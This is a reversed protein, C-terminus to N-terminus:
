APCNLEAPVRLLSHIEVTTGVSLEGATAVIRKICLVVGHLNLWSTIWRKRRAWRRQFMTGPGCKSGPIEVDLCFGCPRPVGFNPLDVCNTLQSWKHPPRYRKGCVGLEHASKEMWDSVESLLVWVTKPDLGCEAVLVSVMRFAVTRVPRKTPQSESVTQHSGAAWGERHPSVSGQVSQQSGPPATADREIAASTERGSDSFGRAGGSRNRGGGPMVQTVKEGMDDDQAEGLRRRARGRGELSTSEM